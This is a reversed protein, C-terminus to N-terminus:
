GGARRQAEQQWEATLQEVTTGLEEALVEATSAAGETAVRRYVDLVAQEGYRDVLLRVALHAGEYAATARPGPAFDGDAPLAPPPGDARVSALFGSVAREVPVGSGRYGAHDALGESLWLPVPGLDRWAVHFAEHALVAGRTAPELGSLVASNVVVRTPGAEVGPAELRTALAALGTAAAGAGVLSRAQDWSQVVVVSLAPALGDPTLDAVAQAAADAEAAYSALSDASVDGVAWSRAGAVATVGAVEWLPVPSSTSGAVVLGNGARVLDLVTRVRAPRDDGSLRYAIEVTARAGGDAAPRSAVVTPTWQDLPLAQTGAFAQQERAGLDPDGSAITAEWAAPDGAAVADVRRSLLDDVAAQVDATPAVRAAGPRPEAPEPSPQGACGAASGAVLAASAALLVM